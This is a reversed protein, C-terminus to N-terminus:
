NVRRNPSANTSCTMRPCREPFARLQHFRSVIAAGRCSTTSNLGWGAGGVARGWGLRRRRGLGLSLPAAGREAQSPAAGGRRAPDLDDGSRAEPLNLIRAIRALAQTHVPALLRM